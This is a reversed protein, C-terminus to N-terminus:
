LQVKYTKIGPLPLGGIQNKKWITKAIWPGKLNWM